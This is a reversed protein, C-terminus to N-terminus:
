VRAIKAINEIRGLKILLPQLKEGRNVIRQREIKEEELRRKYLTIAIPIVLFIAPLLQIELPFELYALCVPVIFVIVAVLFSTIDFVSEKRM